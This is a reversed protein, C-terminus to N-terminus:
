HKNLLKMLSNKTWSPLKCDTLSTVTISNNKKIQQVINSLQEVPKGSSMMKSNIKNQGTLLKPKLELLPTQVELEM